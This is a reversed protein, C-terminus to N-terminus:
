NGGKCPYFVVEVGHPPTGSYTIETDDPIPILHGAGDVYEDAYNSYVEVGDALVANRSGSSTASVYLYGNQTTTFTVGWTHSVGSSFDPMIWAEVSQIGTTDINDLDADAKNSLSSSISSSLTYSKEIMGYIEGLPLTFNKNIEDITYYSATGDKNYLAQVSTRYYVDVIKSGTKSLVYPITVTQSNITYSDSGTKNGYFAPIDDASISIMRLNFTGNWPKIYSSSSKKIGLLIKPPQVMKSSSNIVVDDVFTINDTSVSFKYSSGTFQLRWYYSLNTNYQYTGQSSDAIDFSSGDSSISLSTKGSSIKLEFINNLIGDSDMGSAITLDDDFSSGTTFQGKIIFKNTYEFGNIILYNSSSFGSAIGDSSVTVSGQSSFKTGDFSSHAYSLIDSYISQNYSVSGTKLAKTQNVIDLGVDSIRTLDPDIGSTQEAWKKASHTGGIAQVQADTGEAWIFAKNANEGASDINTLDSAVANVNEIANAVSNINTSSNAVTNLNASYPALININKVLKDTDINSGEQTKVSREVKRSLIQLIRTIYDFTWELLHLNLHSSNKFESEQKISLNLSLSITQESTLVSYSSGSIPFNIYSGNANGTENISYDVGKQLTTETKDKNILTVVLEAENEILFDFDFKTNSGNGTYNNVPVISSITM